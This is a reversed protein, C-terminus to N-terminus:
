AVITFGILVGACSGEGQDYRRVLRIGFLYFIDILIITQMILYVISCIKSISGYIEFVTSPLFLSGVFLGVLFTFKVCFLGENIVQSVRNRCLMILLMLFFLIFLSFSMRLVISSISFITVYSHSQDM